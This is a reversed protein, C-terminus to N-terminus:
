NYNVCSTPKGVIVIAIFVQAQSRVRSRKQPLRLLITGGCTAVRALFFNNNSWAAAFTSNKRAGGPL